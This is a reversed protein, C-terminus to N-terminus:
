EEPSGLIFEEVQKTVKEAKAKSADIQEQTINPVQNGFDAKLFKAFFILEVADSGTLIGRRARLKM